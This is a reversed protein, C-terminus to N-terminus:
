IGPRKAAIPRSLEEAIPQKCTAIRDQDRRYFTRQKIRKGRVLAAQTLTPAISGV